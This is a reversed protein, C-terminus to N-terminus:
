SASIRMTAGGRAMGDTPASIRMTTSGASGDRTAGSVHDRESAETPPAHVERFRSLLDAWAPALTAPLLDALALGLQADRLDRRKAWVLPAGFVVNWQEDSWWVGVPVVPVGLSSLWPGAGEKMAGLVGRAVGEPFVLTPASQARERWARMGALGFGDQEAVTHIRLVNKSWRAFFRAAGWRVARALRSRRRVQRHGIVISCEDPAQPRHEAAGALTASVVDLTLGAHYHNVAFVFPGERPVHDAGVVRASRGALRAAVVRAFRRRGFTEIAVVSWFRLWAVVRSWFSTRM